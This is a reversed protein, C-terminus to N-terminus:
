MTLDDELVGSHIIKALAGESQALLESFQGHQVIKGASLVAVMDCSRILELRHTVVITTPRDERKQLLAQGVSAATAADLASTPEDLILLRPHRIIARAISVRQREGGSLASGGSGVSSSYAGQRAAVFDHACAQRSASEVEADTATAGPVVGFAIAEGVSAGLLASTQPVISLDARLGIWSQDKVDKGSFSIAGSYNDFDRMLLRVLTTKGSGSAGVLACTSGAPISLSVGELVNQGSPYAFSVDGM